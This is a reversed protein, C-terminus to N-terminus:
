QSVDKTQFKRVMGAANFILSVGLVAFLLQSSPKKTYNLGQNSPSCVQYEATVRHGLGDDVKIHWVGETDPNFSFVGNKDTRGNQFEISNNAPSWVTVEAYSVAKGGSYYFTVVPVTKNEVIRYGLSHALARSSIGAVIMIAMIIAFLMSV